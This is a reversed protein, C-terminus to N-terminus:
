THLLPQLHFFSRHVSIWFPALPPAGKWTHSCASMSMGDKAYNPSTIRLELVDEAKYRGACTWERPLTQKESYYTEDAPNLVCSSLQSAFPSLRGALNPSVGGTVILGVEGKAREAYFAALKEFGGKEEELGTHMSGMLVRNKLRTFGLDLPELLHPFAQSLEDEECLSASYNSVSVIVRM